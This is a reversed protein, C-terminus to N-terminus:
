AVNKGATAKPTLVRYSSSKIKDYYRTVNEDNSFIVIM